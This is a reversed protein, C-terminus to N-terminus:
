PLRWTAISRAYTEVADARPETEDTAAAQRERSFTTEGCVSVTTVRRTRNGATRGDTAHPAICCTCGRYQSAPFRELEVRVREMGSQESQPELRVLAPMAGTGSESYRRRPEM